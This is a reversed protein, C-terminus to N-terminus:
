LRERTKKYPVIHCGCTLESNTSLKNIIINVTM